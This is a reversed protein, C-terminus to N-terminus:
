KLLACLHDRYANWFSGWYCLDRQRTINGKKWNMAWRRTVKWDKIDKSEVIKWVFINYQIYQKNVWLIPVTWVLFSQKINVNDYYQKYTMGKHFFSFYWCAWVPKFQPTLKHWLVFTFFLIITLVHVFFVLQHPTWWKFMVGWGLLIIKHAFKSFQIILKKDM